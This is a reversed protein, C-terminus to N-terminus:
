TIVKLKPASLKDHSELTDPFLVINTGDQVQSSAAILGQCGAERAARGLAQSAAERRSQITRWHVKEATLFPELAAAVAQISLDLVRGVKVEVGAMVMPLSKHDPWNLRRARALFEQLATEPANSLYVTRFSDVPNWRGGFNRAGEGSVIDHAFSTTVCRYCVKRLSVAHPLLLQMAALMREYDPHSKVKV